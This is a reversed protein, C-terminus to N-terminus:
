VKSYNAIQGDTQTESKERTTPSIVPVKHPRIICFRDNKFKKKEKEGKLKASMGLYTNSTLDVCNLLSDNPKSSYFLWASLWSKGKTVGM